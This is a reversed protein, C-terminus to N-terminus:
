PVIFSGTVQCGIDFVVHVEYTGPQLDNLFQIVFTRTAGGPVTLDAGSMFGSETPIDSPSDNDSTNWVLFGNHFLKDLKQSTPLEVWYAFLRNITITAVSGNTIVM